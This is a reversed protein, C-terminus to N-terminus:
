LENPIINEKENAKEEKAPAEQVKNTEQPAMDVALQKQFDDQQIINNNEVVPQPQNALEKERKEAEYADIISDCFEVRKKATKSLNNFNTGEPM